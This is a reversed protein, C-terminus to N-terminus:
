SLAWGQFTEPANDLIFKDVVAAIGGPFLHDSFNRFVNLDKEIPLAILFPQSNTVRPM